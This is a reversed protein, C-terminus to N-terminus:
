FSSGITLLGMTLLFLENKKGFYDITIMYIMYIYICWRSTIDAREKKRYIYICVYM